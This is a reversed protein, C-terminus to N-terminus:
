NAVLDNYEPHRKVYGAIFPCVIRIKQGRERIQQLVGAALRSGVGKGEFEPAVETHLLVLVGDASQYTVFGAIAGDVHAEFRHEEVNDIVKSAMENSNM